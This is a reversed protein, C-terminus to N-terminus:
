NLILEQDFVLLGETTQATFDVSLGRQGADFAMDFREITIVGPTTTITRQFISRVANLNPNKVLIRTYYPLGVRVDLLWEGQFFQLRTSVDQRIADLGNVLAIDGREIVLDATNIDLALDM